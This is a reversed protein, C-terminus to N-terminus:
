LLKFGVASLNVVYLVGVLTKGVLQLPSRLVGVSPLTANCTSLPTTVVLNRNSPLSSLINQIPDLVLSFVGLGNTTTSSVVNGAGCMLQISANPFIPTSIGNIVDSKGNLSCYLVGDLHILDLLGNLPGLQAVAVPNAVLAAFFFILFIKASAM